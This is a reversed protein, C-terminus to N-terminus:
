YHMFTMAKLAMKKLRASIEQKKSTRDVSAVFSQLVVFTIFVVILTPRVATESGSIRTLLLALVWAAGSWVALVMFITLFLFVFAFISAAFRDVRSELEDLTALHTDYFTRLVDGQDLKERRVGSPFVSRLGMVAVWFGRLLFHTVIAAILGHSVLKAAYYMTFVTGFSTGGVHIQARGWWNDLITHFQFLVFVLAASILLEM